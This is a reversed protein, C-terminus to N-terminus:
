GGSSEPGYGYKLLADAGFACAASTGEMGVGDILRNVYNFYACVAIAHFLAEESWGAQLVADLDAKTMRSPAETLKRVYRLIPKLRGDVPALDIDELLTKFVFEDVGFEQAILSHAGY